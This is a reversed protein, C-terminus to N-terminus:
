RHIGSHGDGAGQRRAFDVSSDRILDQDVAGREAEKMWRLELVVTPLCRPDLAIVGGETEKMRRGRRRLELVVTPLRRPDLAVAGGEAEKMQRGRRHLELVVTPLRRPDLAIVGGEAEKM